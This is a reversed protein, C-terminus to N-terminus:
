PQALSAAQLLRGSMQPLGVLDELAGLQWAARPMGFVVCSDEDQGFCIAGAKKLNLMGEAGDRGMGTLLAAIVRSGFPVASQFMRDVSPRHGSCKPGASLKARFEEESLELHFAGGPAFLIQGKSPKDGESALRVEPAVIGDLRRTFSSLFQEPMHQTVYTPPCDAPFEKFLYELAEVGGTSAGILIFKGNWEAFHQPALHEGRSSPPFRLNTKKGAVSVLLDALRAFTREAEGFRPKEICDIAGLSMAQIAAESGEPTFSSIMVVPKPRAAMLRKLFELGNMGPMEVDLTVADIEVSQICKRAEVATGAEAVVTLRPDAELGARILKRM